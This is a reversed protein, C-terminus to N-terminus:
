DSCNFLNLSRIKIKESCLTGTTTNLPMEMTLKDKQTLTISFLLYSLYKATKFGFKPQKKFFLIVWGISMMETLEPKWLSEQRPTPDRLWTLCETPNSGPMKQNQIQLRLGILWSERLIFGVTWIFGVTLLIICFGNQLQIFAFLPWSHMKSNKYRQNILQNNQLRMSNKIIM